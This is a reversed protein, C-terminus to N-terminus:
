LRHMKVHTCSHRCTLQLHVPGLYQSLSVVTDVQKTVWPKKKNILIHERYGEIQEFATGQTNRHTYGTATNRRLKCTLVALFYSILFRTWSAPIKRGSHARPHTRGAPATRGDQTWQADAPAQPHTWQAPAM